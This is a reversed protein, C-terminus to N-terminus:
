DHFTAIIRHELNAVETTVLGGETVVVQEVEGPPVEREEVLAAKPVPTLLNHLKKRHQKLTDRTKVRAGCVECAFQRVDSHTTMHNKLFKIKAFRYGCVNCVHKKEDETYHTKMHLALNKKGYFQKGCKDCSYNFNASHSMEEHELLEAKRKYSKTCKSCNYPKYSSHVYQVHYNLRANSPFVKTCVHCMFSKLAKHTDIHPRYLPYETFVKGCTEEPCSKQIQFTQGACKRFHYIFFISTTKQRCVDKQCIPCNYSVNEVDFYPGCKASNVVGKHSTRFHQRLEDATVFVSYCVHCPYLKEVVKGVLAQCIWTAREGIINYPKMVIQEPDVEEGLDEEEEETDEEENIEKKIFPASSMNCKRMHYIFWVVHRSNQIQECFPCTYNETNPNWYSGHTDKVDAHESIKHSDLDEESLFINYCIKCGWIYDVVKGILIKSLTQVNKGKADGTIRLREDTDKLGSVIPDVIETKKCHKRKLAIYGNEDTDSEFDNPGVLANAIDNNERCYKLHKCFWAIHKVIIVQSCKPCNYKNISKTHHEGYHDPDEPHADDKHLALKKFTDFIQYCGHCVYIFDVAKGDFLDLALQYSREGKGPGRTRFVEHTDPTKLSKRGRKFGTYSKEEGDEDSWREPKVTKKRKKSKPEWWEDESQVDVEEEGQIDGDFATTDTNPDWEEDSDEQQEKTRKLGTKKRLEVECFDGADYEPTIEKKIIEQNPLVTVNDGNFALMKLATNVEGMIDRAVNVKGTYFLCLIAKVCSSTFDPTHIVPQSEGQQAALVQRLLPSALALVLRHVRYRGGICRWVTDHRSATRYQAVLERQLREPHASDQLRTPGTPSNAPGARAAPQLPGPQLTTSHQLETVATHLAPQLAGGGALEAMEEELTGGPGVKVTMLGTSESMLSSHSALGGVTELGALEEELKTDCSQLVIRMEPIALRNLESMQIVRGMTPVGVLRSDQLTTTAMKMEQEAGAGGEEDQLGQVLSPMALRPLEQQQLPVATYTSNQQVRGPSSQVVTARTQSPSGLSQQSVTLGLRALDAMSVIRTVTGLETVVQGTSVVGAPQQPVSWFQGAAEVAGLMEVTGALSTRVLEVPVAAGNGEDMRV